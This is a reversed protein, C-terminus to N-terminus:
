GEGILEGLVKEVNAKSYFQWYDGDSDLLKKGIGKMTEYDYVNRKNRNELPEDLSEAKPTIVSLATGRSKIVDEYRIVNEAHVHRHYQRYFWSLLFLQRDDKDDIRALSDRLTANLLEATPAHGERHPFPVTNWSGLVTIPNRIIAYTHFRSVLADVIASFGAPHKLALMGNKSFAKDIAIKGKAVILERNGSSDKQSEVPNDPVVGGAHKSEAVGKSRIMRRTKRFYADINDCMAGDTKCRLVGSFSMPEHLAVTDPLLNLLYCVLTTGSRPVGTILVNHPDVERRRFSRFKSLFRM